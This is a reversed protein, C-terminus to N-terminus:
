PPHAYQATAPDTKRDRPVPPPRPPWVIRDRSPPLARDAPAPAQTPQRVQPHLRLAPATGEWHGPDVPPCPATTTSRRRNDRVDDAASPSAKNGARHYNAFQWAVPREVRRPRSAPIAPENWDRAPPNRASARWAPI